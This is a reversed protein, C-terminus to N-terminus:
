REEQKKFDTLKNYESRKAAALISIIIIGLNCGIILGAAFELM